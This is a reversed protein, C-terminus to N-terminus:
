CSIPHFLVHWHSDEDDQDDSADTQRLLAATRARREDVLEQCVM